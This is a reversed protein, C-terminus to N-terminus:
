PSFLIRPPPSPSLSFKVSERKGGVQDLFSVFHVPHLFLISLFSSLSFSLISSAFVRLALPPQQQQSWPMVEAGNVRLVKRKFRTRSEARRREVWGLRVAKRARGFLDAFGNGKGVGIWGYKVLAVLGSDSRRRVAPCETGHTDSEM